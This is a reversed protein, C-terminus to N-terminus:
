RKRKGKRAQSAKIAAGQKAAKRKAGKGRYIKQHGYQYGGGPAKQVPM